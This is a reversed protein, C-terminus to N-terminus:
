LKGRALYRRVAERVHGNTPRGPGTGSRVQGALTRPCYRAVHGPRECLACHIRHDLATM